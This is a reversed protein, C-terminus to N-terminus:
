MLVKVDVPRHWIMRLNLLLSEFVALNKVEECFTGFGAGVNLLIKTAANHQRSLEVVREARPAFIQSRRSDESAPFIKDNWHKISKSTAYFEVLMEFTPRPNIFITECETCTVFTVGDKEFIVQYSNSEWAPCPIKVFEDKYTLIQQVDEAHLKANERMLYDPRIDEEKM